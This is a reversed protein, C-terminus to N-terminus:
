NSVPVIYAGGYYEDYCLLYQGIAGSHEQTVLLYTPLEGQPINIKVSIYENAALDSYSAIPLTEDYNIGLSLDTKYIGIGLLDLSSFLLFDQGNEDINWTDTLELGSTSDISAFTIEAEPDPLSAFEEAKILDIAEKGLINMYDIVPQNEIFVTGNDDEVMAESCLSDVLEMGYLVKGFAAYDGDLATADQHMIFFQSSASNYDKEERAMSITGRVHSISNEHGNAAFEGPINYESGGLGTGEPDGGQIMFGNIIRHFTLGNYFSGKVLDIFNTVTAPAVDADLELIISGYYDKIHIEVYHKGSLYNEENFYPNESDVKNEKNKCGAFLMTCFLCLICLTFIRKKM